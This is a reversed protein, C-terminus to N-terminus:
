ASRSPYDLLDYKRMKNFLTTRNIALMRATAQRNGANLDLARVIIQREPGELAKKLPGIAPSGGNARAAAPRPEDPQEEFGLDGPGIERGGALLVAREIRNELERVNGPWDHSLLRELASRSFDNVDRGHEGRFRELFTAALLPVDGSRERLPPIEVAVVNLRYYLDERFRGDAVEAELRRNGAAVIRVDVERTESDGVREFRKSEIVRLLKVQLDLSATAIEDLFVTGRDAVEFKGARDRVAGTFAGRVHGFLESELLSGPVSGCNVVVFPESARSSNLHIARALMTKGTGSEGEILVNARTDAISRVTAFVRQMHVDRSILNSLEYRRELDARLERNEEVLSRRDLARRVSVIVQDEPAPKAIYDFAGRRMAAVADDISGFGDLLIVAPSGPLALADDLVGEGSGPDCLVVDWSAEQDLEDACQADV